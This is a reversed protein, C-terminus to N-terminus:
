GTGHTGFLTAGYVLGFLNQIYAAHFSADHNVEAAAVPPQRRRQVGAVRVRNVSKFCVRGVNGLGSTIDVLLTDVPGNRYLSM